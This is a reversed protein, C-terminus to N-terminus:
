NELALQLEASTVHTVRRQEHVIMANNSLTLLIIRRAADSQLLPLWEAERPQADAYDVIVTVPEHPKLVRLAQPLDAVHAIVECGAEQAMLVLAKAFIPRSSIILVRRTNETIIVETM